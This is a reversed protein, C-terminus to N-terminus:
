RAPRPTSRASRHRGPEPNNVTFYLNGDLGMGGDHPLQGLKRPTGLSWDTGDNTNYKARTASAPM